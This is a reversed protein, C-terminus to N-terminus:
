ISANQMRVINAIAYRSLNYKNALRIIQGRKGTFEKLVKDKQENTFSRKAIGLASARKKHEDNIIRLKNEYAHKVNYSQTVWELNELRNDTKIGNKHNSVYNNPRDSIFNSLVLVHISNKKPKGNVNSLSVNLYGNNLVPKLLKNSLHSFVEGNKNISYNEYGKIKIFEKM